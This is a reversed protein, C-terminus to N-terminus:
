NKSPTAAKTPKSYSIKVKEMSNGDSLFGSLGEYTVLSKEKTNFTLEIDPVFPKLFSNDISLLVTILNTKEDFNKSKMNFTYSSLRNPQVFTLKKEEGKLLSDLNKLIFFYFGPGAAMNEKCLLKKIKPLNKQTQKVLELTSSVLSSSYSYSSENQEFHMKPLFEHDSFDSSMKGIISGKPDKFVTVVDLIKENESKITYEETFLLHNSKDFAKGTFQTIDESFAFCIGTLLFLFFKM